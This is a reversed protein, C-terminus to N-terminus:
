DKAPNRIDAAAYGEGPVYYLTCTPAGDYHGRPNVLRANYAVLRAGQAAAEGILRDAEALNADVDPGSIMQVAAIRCLQPSNM